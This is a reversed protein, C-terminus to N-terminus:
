RSPPLGTPGCGREPVALLAALERALAPADTFHIAWLGQRSAATVNEWTDDVFVAECPEVGLRALTAQYASPHPKVVGEDGSCFVVEFLHDIGWEALWLALGPPSNSCVALQYHGHLGDMLDLVDTNIKEDAHYRRRFAELESTSRLGLQPVIAVWFEEATKRGLLAEQWAASAFMITNLAGAALGLEQEYGRFLSEPKQASIVRGFDFIVAKIMFRESELLRRRLRSENQRHRLGGPNEFLTNPV